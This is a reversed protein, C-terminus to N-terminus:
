ANMVGGANWYQRMLNDDRTVSFSIIRGNKLGISKYLPQLKLQLWSATQPAVEHGVIVDIATAVDKGDNMLVISPQSLVMGMMDQTIALIHDRRWDHQPVFERFESKEANEDKPIRLMNLEYSLGVREADARDSILKCITKMGRLNDTGKGLIKAYDPQWADITISVMRLGIREAKVKTKEPQTTIEAIIRRILFLVQEPSPAPNPNTNM